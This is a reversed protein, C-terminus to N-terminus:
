GRRAAREALAASATLTRAITATALAPNLRSEIMANNIRVLMDSLRALSWLALQREVAARRSPWIPPRASRLAGAIGSEDAAARLRHLQLFYREVAVGMSSAQTGSAVLRRVGRDVAAVDGSAAAMVVDDIAFAAGDGIVEAVDDSSIHGGRGAYLCLKAIEARSAARDAGLLDVILTRADPDITVGTAAAEDDVLRALSGENDPYCGIAIASPSSECLQRLPATKRLDGAAIVVFTEPPPDNLAIKLGDTLAKGGAARIRIVRRGAFLSPAYIEEAFRGPENTIEAEDFRAVSMADSGALRDVIATTRETVAGPDSGFLLVVPKAEDPKALYRDIERGRLLTM